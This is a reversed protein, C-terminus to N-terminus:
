VGNVIELVEDGFQEMKETGIGWIGLLERKTLSKRSSLEEFTKDYFVVYAPVKLLRSKQLRWAKLKRFIVLKRDVQQIEEGLDEKWNDEIDSNNIPKVSTAYEYCKECIYRTNTYTMDAGISYVREGSLSPDQYKGWVSEDLKEHCMPCKFKPMGKTM